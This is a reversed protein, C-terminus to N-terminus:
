HCHEAAQLMCAHLCLLLCVCVWTLWYRALCLSTHLLSIHVQSYGIYQISTVRTVDLVVQVM